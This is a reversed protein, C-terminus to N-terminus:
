RDCLLTLNSSNSSRCYKSPPGDVNGVVADMVGKPTEYSENVVILKLIPTAYGKRTEVIECPALGRTYWVDNRTVTLRLMGLFEGTLGCVLCLAVPWA